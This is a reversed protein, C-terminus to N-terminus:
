EDSTALACFIKRDLETTKDSYYACAPDANNGRTGPSVHQSKCYTKLSSLESEHYVKTHWVRNNPMNLDIM